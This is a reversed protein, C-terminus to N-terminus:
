CKLTLGEKISGMQVMILNNRFIRTRDTYKITKKQNCLPLQVEFNFVKLSSRYHNHEEDRAM